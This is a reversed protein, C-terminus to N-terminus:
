GLKSSSQISLVSKATNDIHKQTGKHRELKTKSTFSKNCTKCHYKLLTVNKHVKYTGASRDLHKKTVNHLNLEHSDAFNVDCTKCEYKRTGKVTARSKKAIAAKKELGATTKYKLQRAEWEEFDDRKLTHYNTKTRIKSAEANREDCEAQKRAIEELTLGDEEGRIGELCTVHSCCGDYELEDRSWPCLHPIGYDETRSKMAWLVLSFTTALAIILVRVPFRLV